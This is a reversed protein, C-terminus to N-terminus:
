VRERCSARGIKSTMTPLSPLEAINNLEDLVLALPPVLRNAPSANAREQAVAYVEEVLAAVIPASAATADGVIYLTGSAALFSGIDLREEPSPSLASRVAPDMLPLAVCSNITAWINSVTRENGGM